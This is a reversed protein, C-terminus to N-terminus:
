PIAMKLNRLEMIQNGITSKGQGPKGMFVIRANPQSEM